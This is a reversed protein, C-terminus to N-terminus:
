IFSYTAPPVTGKPDPLLVGLQLPPLLIVMQVLEVSFEVLVVLLVGAVDIIRQHAAICLERWFFIFIDDCSEVNVIDSENILSCLHKDHCRYPNFKM